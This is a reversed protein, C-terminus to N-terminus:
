CRELWLSGGANRLFAPCNREFWPRNVECLLNPFLFIRFAANFQLFARIAYAENWSRGEGHWDANYEFPWPIDHIHVLVGPALEPLVRFLLHCVDSGAKLVHTSDVFLIDGRGLTRFVSMEVQQLKERRIAWVPDGPRMISLLTDPYPDVFTFSVSSALHIENVDLMLASSYGCGVEVVQRPRVHRLIAQLALADGWGFFPNDFHYRRHSGPEVPIWSADMFGALSELLAFQRDLQLDIGPLDVPDGRWAVLARARDEESPIASYFHGPPVHEAYIAGAGTGLRKLDDTYM